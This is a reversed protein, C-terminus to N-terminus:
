WTPCVMRQYLGWDEPTAIESELDSDFDLPIYVDALCFLRCLPCILEYLRHKADRELGSPRLMKFVYGAIVIYQLYWEM